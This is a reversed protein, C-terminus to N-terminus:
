SGLSFTALEFRTARELLNIFGVSKEFSGCDFHTAAM